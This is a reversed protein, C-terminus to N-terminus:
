IVRVKLKGKEGTDGGEGEEGVGQKIRGNWDWQWRRWGYNEITKGRGLSIWGEGRTM